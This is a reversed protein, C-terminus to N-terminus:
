SARPSRMRSKKKGSSSAEVHAGRSAVRSFSCYVFPQHVSQPTTHIHRESDILDFDVGCELALDAGDYRCVPLGSCAEPGDPAFTAVVALGGPNVTRAALSVYRARDAANTLFHFVARDHWVDFQGVDDVETVDAVVWEVRAAADSGLRVKALDLARESVDLVALRSLNLGVLNDVLM